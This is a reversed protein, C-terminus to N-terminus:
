LGGECRVAKIFPRGNGPAPRYYLGQVRIGEPIEQIGQDGARSKIVEPRTGFVMLVNLKKIM